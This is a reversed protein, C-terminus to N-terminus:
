AALRHAVILGGPTRATGGAVAAAEILSARVLAQSRSALDLIAAAAAQEGLRGADRLAVVARVLVARAAASDLEALAEDLAEDAEDVDDDDITELLQQLRPAVLKPLTFQLTLHHAPLEIVEGWLRDLEGDEVGSLVLSARLAEDALFARALEDEGPGRKIGCCRKAKQGSGCSCPENRGLKAMCRDQWACRVFGEYGTNDERASALASDGSM